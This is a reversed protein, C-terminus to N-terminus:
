DPVMRARIQLEVTDGVISRFDDMAYDTRDIHGRAVITVPETGRIDAIPRDFEVKLVLPRTVGRATLKGGVRGERPGDIAMRDARYEITPYRDAWFFGEGVLRRRTTSDSARLTRADISIRMDVRRPEAPDISIGGQIDPFRATKSAIGFFAVKAQVDSRAPDLRYDVPVQAASASLAAMAAASVISLTRLARM